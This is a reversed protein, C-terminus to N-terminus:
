NLRTLYGPHHRFPGWLTINRMSGRLQCSPETQFAVLIPAGFSTAGIPFCREDMAWHGYAPIILQFPGWM